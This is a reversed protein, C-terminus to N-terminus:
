KMGKFMLGMAVFADAIVGNKKKGKLVDFIYQYENAIGKDQKLKTKASKNAGYRTLKVYNDLVCVSGNSFV